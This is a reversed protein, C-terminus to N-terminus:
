AAKIVHIGLQRRFERISRNRHRLIGLDTRNRGSLARSLDTNFQFPVLAVLGVHTADLDTLFQGPLMVFDFTSRPYRTVSHYRADASFYQPYVFGKGGPVKNGIMRGLKPLSHNADEPKFSRDWYVLSAKMMIEISQSGCFAAPAYQKHRYLLRAALYFRTARNQWRVYNLEHAAFKPMVEIYVVSEDTLYRVYTPCM